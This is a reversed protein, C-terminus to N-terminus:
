AAMREPGKSERKAVGDVFTKEAHVDPLLWHGKLTRFNKEAVRLLKWIM